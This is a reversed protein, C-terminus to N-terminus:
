GSKWSIWYRETDLCLSNFNCKRPVKISSLIFWIAWSSLFCDCLYSPCALSSHLPGVTRTIPGQLFSSSVKERLHLPSLIFCSYSPYWRWPTSAQYATIRPHAWCCLIVLISTLDLSCHCSSLTYTNLPLGMSNFCNAYCKAPYCHISQIQFCRDGSSWHSQVM